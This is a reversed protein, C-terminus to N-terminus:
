HNIPLRTFNIDPLVRYTSMHNGIIQLPLIGNISKIISIDTEIHSTQWAYAIPHNLRLQTAVPKGTLNWFRLVLGKDIGDEAPKVSWLFVNPDKINVLSFSTESGAAEGGEAWGTVLKNQHEMAFRMATVANFNSQHTTIAFSYHFSTEGNQNNIGLLGNDELKRDVQGGALANLQPSTDHLSDVTGRGLKFFSCDVNSITVGYDKVTLDAFHNFTQWDYRANQDAYDGGRSAKKATLVAGLEEYHTTPKDLKLSFSWTKVDKFNADISNEIEIRPSNAYLTVRTTHQVPNKSVAKCTVSLPGLNEVILENGDDTDTAGLDNLYRGNMKNVIQRNAKKDVIQTVAGSRSLEIKYYSNSMWGGKVTINSQYVAPYGPHIEFIKYGVSPIDSVMLRLYNKGAKSIVQSPVEKHTTLDLIRVPRQGDYAIDAVGNRNWGLQNFVFFRAYHSKKIEGSLKKASIVQLTDVYNSIQKQLKIQWAARKAQTVPGDGTWNHEWYMGLGEWALDRQPKLLKAFSSDKLAVISYLSEASRLKEVSRRVKATTENMSACLIDWENGFTVSQSPLHPYSKQVDQFFDEENSIRVSRNNDTAKKAAIIFPDAVYSDLDDHGYGFAAGITYPYNVSGTFDDLFGIAKNMDQYVDTKKLTLRCEGYGGLAGYKKGGPNYWKMLVGSSDPGVAYYLQYKRSARAPYSLQSGYGGIGKWCYKAGSGAWLSSLGLPLTNNEMANVMTFRLDYQRELHGAYYMGRIAAETPQAGYTNVLTTLPSSIHGSRIAAILRGFREPSRYKSYTKIWYSGDCNFRTQFDPPNNKTSDIKHLQYDLMKVFATDYQAEDGAWMYDTHDDNGIYLRKKTQAKVWSHTMVLMLLVALFKVWIRLRNYATDIMM